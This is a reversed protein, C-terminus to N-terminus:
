IETELKAVDKREGYIVYNYEGINGGISVGISNQSIVYLSQFRGIPTLTVTVSDIDVLNYWYEPLSIYSDSTKGRVYVGNEPGELCAYQLRKGEKTPHPIIFAKTAASMHGGVNLGGSVGVGGTVIVSGTTPTTSAVGASFTKAGSVTETGALHIVQTDKALKTAM